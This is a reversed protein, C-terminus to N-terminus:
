QKYGKFVFRWPRVRDCEDAYDIGVRADTEYEVEKTSDEIWLGNEEVLDLGYLGGACLLYVNRRVEARLLALDVDLYAETQAYPVYKVDCKGSEALQDLIEELGYLM